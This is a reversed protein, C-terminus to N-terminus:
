RRNKVAVQMDRVTQATVFSATVSVECSLPGQRRMQEFDPWSMRVAHLLQQSMHPTAAKTIGTKRVADHVARQIVQEGLHHRRERRKAPRHKATRGSLGVAVAVLGLRGSVESRSRGADVGARIARSPSIAACGKCACWAM